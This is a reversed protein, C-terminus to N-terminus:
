RDGSTARAAVDDGSVDPDGSVQATDGSVDATM